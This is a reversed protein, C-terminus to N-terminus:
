IEERSVNFTLVGYADRLAQEVAQANEARAFIFGLYRNGEPLPIIREGIPISLTIDLVHPISRAADIGEVAVLRGPTEGPVPLMIVGAAQKERELSDIPLSLAHRLILEELSVGAGFNLVRSCLGGISRAAVEIIM